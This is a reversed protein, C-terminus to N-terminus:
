LPLVYLTHSIIIIKLPKKMKARKWMREHIGEIHKDHNMERIVDGKEENLQAPVESMEKESACV